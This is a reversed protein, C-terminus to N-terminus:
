NGARLRDDPLESFLCTLDKVAESFLCTLDKVAESFLCTLDKVADRINLYVLLLCARFYDDEIIMHRLDHSLM